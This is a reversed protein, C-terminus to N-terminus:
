KLCYKQFTRKSKRKHDLAPDYTSEVHQCAALHHNQNKNHHKMSYCSGSMKNNCTPNLWWRRQGNTKKFIQPHGITSNSMLSPHIPQKIQHLYRSPPKLYTKNEGRNKPFIGMKVSIKPIPQFWWSPIYIYINIQVCTAITNFHVSNTQKLTKETTTEVLYPLCWFCLRWCGWLIKGPEWTKTPHKRTKGKWVCDCVHQQWTKRPQWPVLSYQRNSWSGSSPSSADFGNIPTSPQSPQDLRTLSTASRKVIPYVQQLIEEM